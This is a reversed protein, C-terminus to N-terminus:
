SMPMAWACTLSGNPSSLISNPGVLLGRRISRADRGDQPTVASLIDRASRSRSRGMDYAGRVPARGRGHGRGTLQVGPDGEESEGRTKGGRRGRQFGSTTARSKEGPM